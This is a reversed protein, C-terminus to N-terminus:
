QKVKIKWWKDYEAHSFVHRVFMKNTKSQIRVVIRCENGHVDFVYFDFQDGKFAVDVVKRAPIRDTNWGSTDKWVQKIQQYSEFIVNKAKFTAIWLQLGSRWQSHTAMAEKVRTQTIIRM